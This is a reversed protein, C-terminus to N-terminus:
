NESHSTTKSMEPITLRKHQPTTTVQCKLKSSWSKGARHSQKNSMAKAVKQLKFGGGGEATQCCAIGHHCPTQHGDTRFITIFKQTGYFASFKNVFQIIILKKLLINVMPHLTIIKLNITVQKFSTSTSHFICQTKSSKM